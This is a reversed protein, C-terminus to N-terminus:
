LKLKKFWFEPISKIIGMIWRWVWKSYIVDRKKAVARWIDKAVKEPRATLLKPTNFGETMKTLIYGPKVTIVKVGRNALRNRLGSLYTTFAAKAAGYFYNSARGRDGAVSSIGVIVGSGRTEFSQAVLDLLPVFGFFNSRLIKEALPWDTQAQVQDGMAGIACLVGDPKVTFSEWFAEHNDSLIDFTHYIVKKNLRFSLDNAVKETLDKDRGALEISWGEAGFVLAAARAVDSTGGLILLTPM